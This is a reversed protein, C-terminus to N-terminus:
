QNMDKKRSIRQPNPDSYGPLFIDSPKTWRNGYMDLWSCDRNRNRKENRKVYAKFERERRELEAADPKAEVNFKLKSPM